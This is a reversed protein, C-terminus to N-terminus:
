RRVFQAVYTDPNVGLRVAQDRLAEETYGAPLTAGKAGNGAVANINPAPPKPLAALLTQADQDLEELTAGKLRDVLAGPLNHKAAVERRLLAQQAEAAQRQAEALEAQAQKAIEEWKGQDALAQKEADAKAKAAKSEAQREAQSLREKLIRDIDAQTFTKEPTGGNTGTADVPTAQTAETTAPENTAVADSAVADTM